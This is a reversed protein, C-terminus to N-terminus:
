DDIWGEFIAGEEKLALMRNILVKESFIVDYYEDYEDNSTEKTIYNKDVAVNQEAIVYRIKGDDYYRSIMIYVKIKEESNDRMKIERETDKNYCQYCIIDISKQLFILFYKKLFYISFGINRHYLIFM